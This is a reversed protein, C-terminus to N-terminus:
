FAAPWSFGFDLFDDLTDDNGETCDEGETVADDETGDDDEIEGAGSNSAKGLGEGM